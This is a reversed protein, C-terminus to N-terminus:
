VAAPLRHAVLGTPRHMGDIQGGASMSEFLRIGNAQALQVIQNQDAAMVLANVLPKNVLAHILFNRQTVEDEGAALDRGHRDRIRDAAHHRAHQGVLLCERRFAM